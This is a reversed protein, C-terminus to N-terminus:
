KLTKILINDYNEKKLIIKQAIEDYSENAILQFVYGTRHVSNARKIRGHRQTQSAYSDALDYEILYNCKSLSIGANGAETLILVQYNDDTDSFKTYASEYREESSMSGNIIAVNINLKSEIEQKLLEQMRAYKTFICVKSGSELIEEVLDLCTILKPSKDNCIYQKALQSDSGQLLRPDDALEQAFTQYAMIMAKAKIYDENHELLKPDKFKNEMMDVQNRYEDLKEMFDQNMKRMGPTLECYRQSVILEPLQGAIEEESKIFIHPKVTNVLHEANKVGAVRGFSGWKIYNSSFKSYSQFLNPSIFNFISYLNLPNNTIPTATTGIKYKAYNFGFIAKSIGSKHNGIVQTEDSLVMQINLKLLKEVVAKNKLTEYNAILMDVDEFQEEFRKKSAQSPTSIAKARLTKSFKEVEKVWQHKLSAKVVVLCKSNKPILNQKLLENFIGVGIISKGAGTPLILLSEPNNIAFHITEKQYYYPEYVLDTGIDDYPNSISIANPYNTLLNEIHSNPIKYALTTELPIFSKPMDKINKHFENFDNLNDGLFIVEYNNGINRYSIM